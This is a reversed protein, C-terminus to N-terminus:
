RAARRTHIVLVGCETNKGAYRPPISAPSAYYEIAEIGDPSFTNINFAPEGPEGRYAAAGNIFIAAPCFGQEMVRRPDAADARRFTAMSRRRSALVAGSGDIPVVRAGPLESLISSLPRNTMKELTDRTFFHGRGLERHEDFSPIIGIARARM